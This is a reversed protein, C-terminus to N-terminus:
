QPTTKPTDPGFAAISSPWFVKDLKFKRAAELSNFLTGM